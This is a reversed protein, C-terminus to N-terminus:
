DLLMNESSDSRPAIYRMKAGTQCYIAANTKDVKACFFFTEDYRHRHPASHPFLRPFFVFNLTNYKGNRQYFAHIHLSHLSPSTGASFLFCKFFRKLTSQRQSSISSQLILYFMAAATRINSFCRCTCEDNINYFKKRSSIYYVLQRATYLLVFSAPTNKHIGFPYLPYLKAM